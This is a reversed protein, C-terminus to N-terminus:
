AGSRGSHVASPARLSPWFANVQARYADFSQGRSRLMHAELPPIGSVHVLLWYMLAPAALVLWGAPYSATWAVAIPVYAVWALWEFFYNPHRSRGWLGVDCIRGRNAPDARFVALQRDAVAEGFIAATLVGIGLLDLHRGFPEPNHGAVSIALVLALAVAAQIQLFWFLRFSFGDGWDLMLQRYRPDDGHRLTRQAIHLGLRLSWAVVLAAVVLQRPSVQDFPVVAMIAGVLGVAFSWVVDIWGANGSLRQALWAGAMLLSLALAAPLIAPAITM